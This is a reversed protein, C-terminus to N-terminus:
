WPGKSVTWSVRSDALRQWCIVLAIPVVLIGHSYNPEQEWIAYLYQLNPWYAWTLIGFSIALALLRSPIIRLWYWLTLPQNRSTAMVSADASSLPALSLSRTIQM